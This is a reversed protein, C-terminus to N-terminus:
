QDGTDTEPDDLVSWHEQLFELLDLWSAAPEKRHKRWEMRTADTMLNTVVHVIILNTIDEEENALEFGKHKLASLQASAGDMLKRLETASNGSMPNM